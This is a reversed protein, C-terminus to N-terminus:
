VIHIKDLDDAPDPFQPDMDELVDVLINLVAWNRWWKHDAPVVYWPGHETSTANITEEYARQYDDWFRREIILNKGEVWGLRQLTEYFITLGGTVDGVGLLGVRKSPLPQQAIASTSARGLDVASLAPIITAIRILERRRM